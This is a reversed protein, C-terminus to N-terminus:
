GPAAEPRRTITPSTHCRFVTRIDSLSQLAVAPVLLEGELAELRVGGEVVGGQHGEEEEFGELPVDGLLDQRGGGVGGAESALHDVDGGRDHAGAALAGELDGLGGPVPQPAGLQPLARGVRGAEDPDSGERLGCDSRRGGPRLSPQARISRSARQLAGM